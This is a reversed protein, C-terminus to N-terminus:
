PVQAVLTYTFATGKQSVMKLQYTNGNILAPVTLAVTDLSNNVITQPALAFTTVATGDLYADTIIVDTSGSNRVSVTIATSSTVEVNTITLQENGMFGVTLAGMWAAVAISVAVTVAILIISAIVPSLAKRSRKFNKMKEKIGGKQPQHNHYFPNGM